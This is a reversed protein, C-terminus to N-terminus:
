VLEASYERPKFWMDPLDFDACAYDHNRRSDDNEEVQKGGEIMEKVQTNSDSPLDEEFSLFLM